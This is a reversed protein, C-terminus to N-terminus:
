CTPNPSPTGTNSGGRNMRVFARGVGDGTGSGTSGISAPDLERSDGFRTCQDVPRRGLTALFVPNERRRTSTANTQLPDSFSPTMGYFAGYVQPFTRRHALARGYAAPGYDTPSSGKTVPSRASALLASWFRWGGAERVRPWKATSGGPQSSGSMFLEIREDREVIQRLFDGVQPTSRLYHEGDLREEFAKIEAAGRVCRITLGVPRVIKRRAQNSSKQDRKMGASPVRVGTRPEAWENM